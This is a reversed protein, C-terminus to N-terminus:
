SESSKRKYGYSFNVKLWIIFVSIIRWRAILSSTLICFCKRVWPTASSVISIARGWIGRYTAHGMYEVTYFEGLMNQNKSKPFNPFCLYSRYYHSDMQMTPHVRRVQHHYHHCWHPCSSLCWPCTSVFDPILSILTSYLSGVVLLYDLFALPLM